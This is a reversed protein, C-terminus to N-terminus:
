AYKLAETIAEETVTSFDLSERKQKAEIIKRLFTEQATHLQKGFMQSSNGPDRKGRVYRFMYTAECRFYTNMRSGSVYDIGIPKGRGINEPLMQVRRILAHSKAEYVTAGTIIGTQKEHENKM